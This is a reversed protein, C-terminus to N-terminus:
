DVARMLREVEAMSRRLDGVEGALRAVEAATQEALRRYADDRALAARAVVIERRHRLFLVLFVAAAILVVVFIVVGQWALLDADMM